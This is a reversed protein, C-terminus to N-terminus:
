RGRKLVTGPKTEEAVPNAQSSTENREGVAGFRRPFPGRDEEGRMIQRYIKEGIGLSGQQALKKSLEQDFLNQYIDHGPGGMLFGNQPVTQRMGKLLQLMFLSEFDTCAKRLKERDIRPSGSKAAVTDTGPSEVPMRIKNIPGSEM